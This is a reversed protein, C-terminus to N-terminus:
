ELKRGKREKRSQALDRKERLAALIVFFDCLLIAFFFLSRDGYFELARNQNM